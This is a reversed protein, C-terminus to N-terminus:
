GTPRRIARGIAPREAPLRRGGVDDLRVDVDAGGVGLRSTGVRAGPRALHHPKVIKRGAELRGVGQETGAPDVLCSRRGPLQDAVQPQGDIPKGM